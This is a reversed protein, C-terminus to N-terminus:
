RIKWSHSKSTTRRTSPCWYSSVLQNLTELDMQMWHMAYLNNIKEANKLCKEANEESNIDLTAACKVHQVCFKRSEVGSSSLFCRRLARQYRSKIFNPKRYWKRILKEPYRLLHTVLPVAPLTSTNRSGWRWPAFAFWCSELCNRTDAHNERLWTERTSTHWHTWRSMHRCM